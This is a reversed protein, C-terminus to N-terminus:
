KAYEICICVFLVFYFSFLVSGLISSLWHKKKWELQSATQFFSLFLSARLHFQGLSM